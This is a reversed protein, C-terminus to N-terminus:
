TDKEIMMGVGKILMATYYLDQGSSGPAKITEAAAASRQGGNAGV